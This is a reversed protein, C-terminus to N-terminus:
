IRQKCLINAHQHETLQEFAHRATTTSPSSLKELGHRSSHIEWGILVLPSDEAYTFPLVCRMTKHLVWVSAADQSTDGRWFFLFLIM